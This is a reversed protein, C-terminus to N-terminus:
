EDNSGVKCYNYSVAANALASRSYRQGSSVGNVARIVSEDEGCEYDLEIPTIQSIGVSKLYTELEEITMTTYDFNLDVYDDSEQSDNNQYTFPVILRDSNLYKKGDGITTIIINYSVEPYLSDIPFNISANSTVRYTSIITEDQNALSVDYGTANNVADFSVSVSSGLSIKVNSVFPLATGNAYLQDFSFTVSNGTGYIKSGDYAVLYDGHSAIAIINSWSSANLVIDENDSSILLTGDSRLAAVFDNGCAVDVVNRWKNTQIDDGYRSICTVSKDANAIVLYNDSSAIDIPSEYNKLQSSGLMTGKFSLKGDKGEVITGNETAYIKVINKFDDVDCQGNTNDGIAFVKGKDNLAVLHNNGAAIDVIRSWNPNSDLNSGGNSGLNGLITVKGDNTLVAGFGNGSVVKVVSTDAVYSVHEDNTKYAEYVNTTGDIFYINTDSIALRNIGKLDLSVFDKYTIKYVGFILMLVLIVAVGISRIPHVRIFKKFKESLTRDPLFYYEDNGSPGKISHLGVSSSNSFLEIVKIRYLAALKKCQEFDCVKNGNEIAMYEVVDIGLVEAIKSQSYNYHKRLKLLKKPLRNM